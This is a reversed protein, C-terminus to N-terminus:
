RSQESGRLLFGGWQLRQFLREPDFERAAAQMAKYNERGYSRLVAQDLLLDKARASEEVERKLFDLAQRAANDSTGNQDPWECTFVWWCQATKFLGMINGDRIAASGVPQITYQLIANDPLMSLAKQWAHYVDAYLAASPKTTLTGIYRKKQDTVDHAMVNALSALTGTTTPCAVTIQSTLHGLHKANLANLEDGEHSAHILGVAAFASNYNTFIGLHPDAEMAEQLDITAQNINVYDDPKYLTINYQLKLLPFTRIDFRTVIGFSSGGGKLARYLDSNVTSNANVIRGYGLAVVLPLPVEFNEVCDAGLGYLNPLAGLGGGLLFGMGVEPDRGGVVSLGERELWAYVDGWKNGAGIRAISRDNSLKRTQLGSIDLVVGKEGTSNFGPNPNHGGSRIAFRLRTDRLIELATSVEDASRLQVYCAAPQWCTQSWPQNQAAQFAPGAEPTIARDPFLHKFAGMTISTNIEM